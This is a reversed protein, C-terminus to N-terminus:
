DFRRRLREIEVDHGGGRARNCFQVLRRGSMREYLRVDGPLYGVEARINKSHQWADMELVRASGGSARLLGMFVRMATTKGAGNPGLFGFICGAPIALDVGALAQVRGYSKLLQRAEIVNMASM